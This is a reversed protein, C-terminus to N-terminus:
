TQVTGVRVANTLPGQQGRITFGAPCVLYSGCAVWRMDLVNRFLRRTGIISNVRTYRLLLAAKVINNLTIEWEQHTHGWM